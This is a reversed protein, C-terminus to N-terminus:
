NVLVNEVCYFDGTQFVFELCAGSPCDSDDSCRKTCFPDSSEYRACVRTDCQVQNEVVCNKLADTDNLGCSSVAEDLSNPDLDCSAYLDDACGVMLTLSVLALLGCLVAGLKSHRSKMEM